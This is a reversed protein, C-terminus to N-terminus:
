REIQSFRGHMLRAEDVAACCNAGADPCDGDSDGPSAPGAHTRVNNEDSGEAQGSGDVREAVERLIGLITAYRKAADPAPTVKVTVRYDNRVRAMIIEHGVWM